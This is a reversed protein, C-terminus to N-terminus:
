VKYVGRDSLSPKYEGDSETDYQDGTGFASPKSKLDANLTAEKIGLKSRFCEVLMKAGNANFPAVGAAMTFGREDVTVLDSSLVSAGSGSKQLKVRKGLEPTWTGVDGTASLFTFRIVDPQFGCNVYYEDSVYASPNELLFADYQKETTAM